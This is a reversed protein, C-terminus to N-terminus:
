WWKPEKYGGTDVLPHRSPQVEAESSTCRGADRCVSVLYTPCECMVPNITGFATVSSKFRNSGLKSGYRSKCVSDNYKGGVVGLRNWVM